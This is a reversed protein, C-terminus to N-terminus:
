RDSCRSVVIDQDIVGNNRGSWSGFDIHLIERGAKNYIERVDDIQYVTCVLPSRKSYTRIGHVAFPLRRDARGEQLAREAYKDLILWTHVMTTEPCSASTLIKLTSIADQPWMHTFVSFSTILDLNFDAVLRVAELVTPETRNLTTSKFISSNTVYNLGKPM